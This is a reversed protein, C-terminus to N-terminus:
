PQNRWQPKRKPKRKLKPSLAADLREGDKLDTALDALADLIEGDATGYAKKGVVGATSAAPPESYDGARTM